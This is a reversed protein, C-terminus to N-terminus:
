KSEKYWDDLKIKETKPMLNSTFREVKVVIFSSLKDIGWATIQKEVDARSSALFDRCFYSSENGIWIQSCTAFEGVSGQAQRGHTVGNPYLTKFYDKYEDSSEMSFFDMIVLYNNQRTEISNATM